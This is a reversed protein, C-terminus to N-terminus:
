FQWINYFIPQSDLLNQCYCLPFTNQVTAAATNYHHGAFDIPFCFIQAGIHRSCRFINFGFNYQIIIDEIKIIKSIKTSIPGVSDAKWIASIYRVQFKRYREKRGSTM